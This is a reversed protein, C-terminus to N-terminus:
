KARKGRRGEDVDMFQFILINVVGVFHVSLLFGYLAETIWHPHIVDGVERSLWLMLWVLLLCGWSHLVLFGDLMVNHGNTSDFLGGSISHPRFPGFPILTYTRQSRLWVFLHAATHIVGGLVSWLIWGDSTGSLSTFVACVGAALGTAGAIRYGFVTLRHYNALVVVSISNYLAFACWWGWQSRVGDETRETEGQNILLVVIGLSLIIAGKAMLDMSNVYKRYRLVYEHAKNRLNHRVVLLSYAMVPVGLLFYVIASALRAWDGDSDIGM